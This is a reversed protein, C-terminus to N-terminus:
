ALNKVFCTSSTAVKRGNERSKERGREGSDVSLVREQLLPVVPLAQLAALHRQVFGQLLQAGRRAVGRGALVLPGAGDGFEQVADLVAEGGVRVEEFLDRVEGAHGTEGVVQNLHPVPPYPPRPTPYSKFKPFKM